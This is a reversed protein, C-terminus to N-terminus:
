CGQFQLTRKVELFRVHARSMATDAKPLLLCECSQQIHNHEPLHELEHLMM